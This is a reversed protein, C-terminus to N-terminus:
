HIKISPQGTQNRIIPVKIIIKDEDDYLINIVKKSLYSGIEQLYKFRKSKM